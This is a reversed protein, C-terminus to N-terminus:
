IAPFEKDSNPEVSPRLTPAKVLNPPATPAAAAAPLANFPIISLVWVEASTKSPAMAPHLPTTSARATDM